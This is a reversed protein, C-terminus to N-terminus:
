VFDRPRLRPPRGGQVGEVRYEGDERVLQYEALVTVGDEGTLVVRIELREGSGDCIGEGFTISRFRIFQPYGERMMQRFEAVSPFNRQLAKSQYKAARAFDDDRFARLQTEICLIAAKREAMSPLRMGIAPLEETGEAAMSGPAPLLSILGAALLLEGIRKM